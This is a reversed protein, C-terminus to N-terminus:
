NNSISDTEGIYGLKKLQSEIKKTEEETLESEATSSEPIKTMTQLISEMEKVKNPNSEAINNNEFPDNKLDYLHVDEVNKDQIGDVLRFYKFEPTRLGVKDDSTIKVHPTTHLYIPKEEFEMDKFLPVLSRGDTKQTYDIGVIEFITPFIDVTAVQQSIIKHNPTNYGVFLLPIRSTEDFISLATHPRRSRIEYPSLGENVKKLRSDRIKNRLAVIMKAGVRHTSRPM